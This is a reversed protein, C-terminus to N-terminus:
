FDITAAEEGGAEYKARNNCASIEKESLMERVPRFAYFTRDQGLRFVGFVWLHWVTSALNSQYNPAHFSQDIQYSGSLMRDLVTYSALFVRPGVYVLDQCHHALRVGLKKAAWKRRNSSKKEPGM